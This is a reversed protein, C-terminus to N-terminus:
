HSKGLYLRMSLRQVVNGYPPYFLGVPFWRHRKFVSKAHSLERFGEEGHYSGMGSNGIGGFPLDHQFVHWGWDNLTVGGAHTEKLVRAQEAESLGFAYLSLPREGARVLALADDLRDYELVPLIPGFIEEQMLQMRDNADTVVTLAMQRGASSADGCSLLTAGKARADDLLHRLRAAHRETIISTYEPNGRVSPYLKGFADRVATAFEAAKGRPVLAYDPAVCIQGANFAKGHAIRLAADRLDADIGVIAPSKGGLELTVPTLNESAARMVERGVRPSGTFVLHNFPLANFAQAAEVAGGCVAVEDEPFCEGLMTRLLATTRPSFESVKIM